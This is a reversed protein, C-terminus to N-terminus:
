GKYFASLFPSEKAQEPLQTEQQRKQMMKGLNANGGEALLLKCIHSKTKWMLLSETVEMEAKHRLVATVGMDTVSAHRAFYERLTAIVDRELSPGGTIEYAQPVSICFLLPSAWVLDSSAVV